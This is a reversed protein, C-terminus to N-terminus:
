ATWSKNQKNYKTNSIPFMRRMATDAERIQRMNADIERRAREMADESRWIQAHLQGNAKELSNKRGNYHDRIQKEM